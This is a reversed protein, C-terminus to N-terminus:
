RRPLRSQKESRPFKEFKMKTIAPEGIRWVDVRLSVVSSTLGSTLGHCAFSIHRFKPSKPVTKLKSDGLHSQIRTTAAVLTAYPATVQGRPGFPTSALWLPRAAFILAFYFVTASRPSALTISIYLIGNREPTVSPRPSRVTAAQPTSHLCWILWGAGGGQCCCPLIGHKPCTNAYAFNPSTLPNLFLGGDVKPSPGDRAQYSLCVRGM